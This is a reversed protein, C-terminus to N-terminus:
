VRDSKAVDDLAGLWRKYFMKINALSVFMIM